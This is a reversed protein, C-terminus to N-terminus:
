IELFAPSIKAVRARLITAYQLWAWTKRAFKLVFNPFFRAQNKVLKPVFKPGPKTPWEPWRLLLGSTCGALCLIKLGEFGEFLGKERAQEPQVSVRVYPTRLMCCKNKSLSKNESFFAEGSPATGVNCVDM